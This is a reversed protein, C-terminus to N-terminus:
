GAFAVFVSGLAATAAFLSVGFVFPMNKRTEGQRADDTRKEITLDANTM